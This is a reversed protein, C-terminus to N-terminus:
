LKSRASGEYNQAYATDDAFWYVYVSVSKIVESEGVIKSLLLPVAGVCVSRKKCFAEAQCFHSFFCPRKSFSWDEVLEFM